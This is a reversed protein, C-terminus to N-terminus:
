DIEQLNRGLEAADSSQVYGLRRSLELQSDVESCSGIVVNLVQAFQAQGSRTAGETINSM